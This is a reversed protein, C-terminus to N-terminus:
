SCGNEECRGIGNRCKDELENELFSITEKLQKIENRMENIIIDITNADYVDVGGFKLESWTKVYIKKPAM